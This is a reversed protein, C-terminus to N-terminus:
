SGRIRQCKLHLAVPHADGAEFKDPRTRLRSPALRLRDFHTLTGSYWCRLQVVLDIDYMVQREILNADACGHTITLLACRCPRFYM